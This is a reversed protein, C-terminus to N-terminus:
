KLLKLTLMTIVAGVAFGAAVYAEKGIAPAAEKAETGANIMRALALCQDSDVDELADFLSGKIPMSPAGYTVQPDVSWAKITKAPIGAELLSAGFSDEELKAGVWNMREALAEFPSASAHVGNDGVNPESDLGLEQWNKYILGRLSDEPASVPDTPGLVAGRFDEWSLKDSEWEVVYYYISVGPAVYKNRMAMFFGNFIYIGQTNGCYFGGGFKILNGSKKCKAWEQDLGNADLGLKECAQKANFVLGQDLAEQWGLGFKGKFKEAPVNLEHPPLITAKSAIAYYHNDIL